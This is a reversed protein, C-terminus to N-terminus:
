SRRVPKTSRPPLIGAHLREVVEDAKGPIEPSGLVIQHDEGFAVTRGAVPICEPDFRASRLHRSCPRLVKDLEGEIRHERSEIIGRDVVASVEVGGSAVGTRGARRGLGEHVSPEESQRADPEDPVRM